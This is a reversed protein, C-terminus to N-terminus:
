SHRAALASGLLALEGELPGLLDGPWICRREPFPPDGQVLAAATFDPHTQLEKWWCRRVLLLACLLSPPPPVSAALLLPVQAGRFQTSVLVCARIGSEAGLAWPCLSLVTLM